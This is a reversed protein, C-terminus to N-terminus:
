KRYKGGKLGTLGPSYCYSVTEFLLVLSHNEKKPNLGRINQFVSPDTELFHPLSAVVPMGCKSLDMLGKRPCTDPTPCYCKDAPSTTEDGIDNM